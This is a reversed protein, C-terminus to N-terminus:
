ICLDADLAVQRLPISKVCDASTIERLLALTDARPLNARLLAAVGSLGAASVSTGRFLQYGGGAQTTLHEPRTFWYGQLGDVGVVGDLSAPFNNSEDSVNAAAIVITGSTMAVRLLESLLADDPGALSLNLVDIDAEIVAEVAKALAFSSCRTGDGGKHCASFAEIEADPALGVVGVSNNGAAGIIGAVATGHFEDTAVSRSSFTQHRGIRRDLDPHSRDVPGDIIGVRVNRGTSTSHLRLLEEAHEGYQLDFLPDNYRGTAGMGHFAHNAQAHRVRGDKRLELLVANPDGGLPLNYAVCYLGLSDIPWGESIELSYEDALARAVRRTHLNAEWSGGHYARQSGGPLHQDAGVLAFTVLIDAEDSPRVAACGTALAISVALLLARNFMVSAGIIGM